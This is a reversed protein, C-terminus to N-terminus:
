YVNYKELLVSEIPIESYKNVIRTAEKKFQDVGGEKVIGAADLYVIMDNKIRPFNKTLERKHKADKYPIRFVASIHTNPSATTIFGCSVFKRGTESVALPKAGPAFGRESSFLFALFALEVIGFFIVFFLFINPKKSEM